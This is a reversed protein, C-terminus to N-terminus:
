VEPGWPWTGRACGQGAGEQVRVQPFPEQTSRKPLLPTCPHVAPPTHKVRSSSLQSLTAYTHKGSHLSSSQGLSELSATGSSLGKQCWVSVPCRTVSPEAGATPLSCGHPSLLGEPLVAESGPPVPLRPSVDVPSECPPRCRVTDGYPLAPVLQKGQADCPFPFSVRTEEGAKKSRLTEWPPLLIAGMQPRAGCRSGTWLM